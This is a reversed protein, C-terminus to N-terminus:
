AVLAHAFDWLGANIKQVASVREVARVASQRGFMASRTAWGGNLVNEQIRNLVAWVSDGEDMPRRSKLLDSALFPPTTSGYRLRLAHEAFEFPQDGILRHERFKEVDALMAPFKETVTREAADLVDMATTRNAIHYVKFGGLHQGVMMGNSCVFRFYGANVSYAASGDHGNIIVVEPVGEGVIAKAEFDELRRMRLMHKTYPDRDAQRSRQQSAEWVGWGKDRLGELVRITPVYRYSPGRSAHPQEAFVAPAYKMIAADALPSGTRLVRM